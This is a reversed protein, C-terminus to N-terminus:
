MEKAIKLILTRSKAESLAVKEIAAYADRYQRVEGENGLYLDGTFGEVYVLPPENMWELKQSPFEMLLFPGTELGVHSKASLPVIRISVNPRKSVEHLHQLQEKMVVPGGIGRRRLASEDLVVALMFTDPSEDIREQRKTVLDVRQEVVDQDLDPSVTLLMARRYAATQLLGPLLTLQYVTISSASQELGVYVEFDAPLADGYSYWWNPKRAEEMLKLLRQTLDDSAGYLQCLATIVMQKMQSVAGSEYRWLTNAGMGLKKAVDPRSLSKAKRMDMLKKGLLRRPLTSDSEM